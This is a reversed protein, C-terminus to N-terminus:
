CLAAGERVAVQAGQGSGTPSEILFPPKGEELRVRLRRTTEEWCRRRQHTVTVPGPSSPAVGLVAAPVPALPHGGRLAPLSSTCYGMTLQPATQSQLTAM